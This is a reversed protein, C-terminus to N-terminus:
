NIKQFAKLWREPVDGNSAKQYDEYTCSLLLNKLSNSNFSPVEVWWRNTKESKYFILEYEFTDLNVIFRKYDITNELPYESIRNNYGDIFYWIIQAILHATQNNLDISNLYDYIGFTSLKNSMGAYRALQCIEEGYYGNPSPNIQGFAESQRVSSINLGILDADRFIPEVEKINSRIYGLRYFYHLNDSLYKIINSNVFHSQYGINTFSFLADNEEILIKWLPSKYGVDRNEVINISSDISVLNIKQDLKKYALYNPYTINEASGIIIPLVGLTILEIIVDRLGIINDNATKGFKLNGLDYVKPNKEFSTLSYLSERIRSLGNISNNLGNLDENVVGIIAISYNEANKIPKEATHISISNVLQYKPDIYDKQTIGIKIPDFYDNFNM